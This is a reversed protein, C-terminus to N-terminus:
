GFHLCSGFVIEAREVERHLCQDVELPIVDLCSLLQQRREPQPDEDYRLVNQRLYFGKQKLGDASPGNGPTM